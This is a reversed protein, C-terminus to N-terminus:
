RLLAARSQILRLGTLGFYILVEYPRINGAFRQLLGSDALSLGCVGTAILRM